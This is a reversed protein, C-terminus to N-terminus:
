RAAENTVNGGAYLPVNESSQTAINTAARDLTQQESAWTCQQVTYQEVNGFPAVVACGALICAAGLGAIWMAAKMGRGKGATM